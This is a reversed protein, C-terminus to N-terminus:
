RVRRSWRYRLAVRLEWFTEDRGAVNELDDVTRRDVRAVAELGSGPDHWRGELGARWQREVVGTPFGDGERGFEGPDDLSREGRRRRLLDATLRVTASPWAEVWGHAQDADPGLTSGLPVDFTTWNTGLGPDLYMREDARTYEAGLTIGGAGPPDAWRGGVRWARPDDIGDGDQVILSAYAEVGRAPWTVFEGSALFSRRDDDDFLRFPVVMSAFEAEIGRDFGTSVVAETVAAQGWREWRAEVRHLYVNREINRVGGAPPDSGPIVRGEQDLSRNQREGSLRGVLGSLRVPDFGVEVRVQDLSSISDGLLPRAGRGPGLSMAFRGLRAHVPGAAFAGYADLVVIGFEDKDGRDRFSDSLRSRTPDNRVNQDVVYRHVFVLRDRYQVALDHQGVLRNRPEGDSVDFRVEEFPPDFTADDTRESGAYSLTVQNYIDLPLEDPAATAPPGYEAELMAVWRAVRSAGEGLGLEGAREVLARFEAERWPRSAVWVVEALEPHRLLLADAVEYTWHTTPVTRLPQATAPEGGALVLVALAIAASRSIGAILGEV